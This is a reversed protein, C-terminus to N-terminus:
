PAKSLIKPRSRRAGPSMLRVEETIAELESKIEDAADRLPWKDDACELAMVGTVALSLLDAKRAIEELHNGIRDYKIWVDHYENPASDMLALEPTRKM